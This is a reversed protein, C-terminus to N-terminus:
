LKIHNYVRKLNNLGDLGGSSFHILLDGPKLNVSFYDIIQDNTPLYHFKNAFINQWDKATVRKNAPLHASFSLKGLIFNDILPVIESFERISEPNQLFTAHPEFYVHLRHHPYSFKLAELTSKVRNFSQAFDDYIHINNKSYIKELRRKIGPFSSIAQTIKDEKIGIHRCFTYAASINQQNFEGVLLSDFKQDPSYPITKCACNSLLKQIDSCNQNYILAGPAPINKVLQRYAQFNDEATPYSEKHEWNISTLILYKVPYYLFKAKQDLGNISEDAEAVSWDTPSFALSPSNDILQGGILYNPQYGCRNLIWTILASITTKGFSGAVLVSNTKILNQSLYQTASIYPINLKKIQNFEDICRTFSLYSSGIIALDIHNDIPTCNIPINTILDSIPPYIKEQDSGTVLYGQKKLAVALPATMVGAIGLIHIHKLIKAM